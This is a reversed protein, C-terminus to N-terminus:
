TAHAKEEKREVMEHVDGHYLDDGSKPSEHESVKLASNRKNAGDNHEDMPGYSDNRQFGLRVQERVDIYDMFRELSYRHYEHMRLMEQLPQRNTM